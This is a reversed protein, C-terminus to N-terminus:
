VLHQEYHYSNLKIISSKTWFAAIVVAISAGTILLSLPAVASLPWLLALGRYYASATGVLAFILWTFKDTTHYPLRAFIKLLWDLVLILPSTVVAGALLAVFLVAIAFVNISPIAAIFMIVANLCVAKAWLIAATSLTTM